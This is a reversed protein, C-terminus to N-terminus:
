FSHRKKWQELSHVVEDDSIDRWNRYFDALYYKPMSAVACTIVRAVSSARKYGTASAVPVAVIIEKPRRHRVSEVAVTMTIGSALGDDVIVAVKGTLRAPVDEGKYRMRRQKVNAKVQNVEYEIQEPSIGDRKIVDENLISTGDDAVAGLGGEPNMPLAFKRCVIIDLDAHLATAVEMALPVGGNPIALVVTKQNIYGILEAALKRGADSRNEFLIKSATLQETVNRRLDLVMKVQIPHLYL